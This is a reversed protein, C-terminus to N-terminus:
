LGVADDLAREVLLVRQLALLSPGHHIRGSVIKERLDDLPVRHVTIAEFPGLEPAGQPTVGHAAFMWIRRPTLAADASAWGLPEWMGGGYGTEERLERRAAALESEDAGVGGGPVELSPGDVGTRHQEVLIVDGNETIPVVVAVDPLLIRLHEDEHPGARVPVAEIQLVPHDFVRRM